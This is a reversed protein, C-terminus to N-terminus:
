LDRLILDTEGPNLGIEIRIVKPHGKYHARVADRLVTGGHYGHIVRLRYVSADARRLQADIATIAQVKTMQHIDIEQFGSVAKM